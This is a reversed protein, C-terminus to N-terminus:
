REVAKREAAGIRDSQELRADTGRGTPQVDVGAPTQPEWDFTMDGITLGFLVAKLSSLLDDSQVGWPVIVLLLSFGILFIQVLGSVLIGLQMISRAPLGITVQKPNRKSTAMDCDNCLVEACHM